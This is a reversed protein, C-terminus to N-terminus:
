GQRRKPKFKLEIPVIRGKCTIESLEFGFRDRFRQRLPGILHGEEDRRFIRKRM